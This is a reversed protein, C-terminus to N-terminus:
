DSAEEPPDVRERLWDAADAVVSADPGSLKVRVHEGPYSGVQVDDFRERLEAFRDVLKSEPEGAHVFEVHQVEGDFEDAVKAFMAKMETPVGPFVYVSELVCGPAVGAENHLVRVGVPLHTTGAVLDGAAYGGHETLWRAAEENQEVDRGFAAAVGEMTLDDHTPGLGGTVLVADYKARSENVVQAIDGVDDPITFVRQVDVGRDTLERCLWTANTNETDGSLLEDGVTVVAAQM